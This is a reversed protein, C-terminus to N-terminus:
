AFQRAVVFAEAASVGIEAGRRRALRELDHVSRGPALESAYGEFAALKKALQQESLIVYHTPAFPAHHGFGQDTSTPVEFLRVDRRRRFPRTAIEVARSLGRHVQNVDQSWHTLVLDAAEVYPLILDHLLHVSPEAASEPMPSSHVVATAGLQAAARKFQELLQPWNAVGRADERRLPLLITCQDGAEAHKALTGGCGLTEDDPHAVVALVKM